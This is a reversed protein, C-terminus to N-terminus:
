RTAANVPSRSATALLKATGRGGCLNLGEACRAEIPTVVAHQLWGRATESDHAYFAICFGLAARFLIGM